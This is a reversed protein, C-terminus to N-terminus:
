AMGLREQLRKRAEEFHNVLQTAQEGPMGSQRVENSLDGLYAMQLKPNQELASSLQGVAPPKTIKTKDSLGGAVGGIAGGAGMGGGISGATSLAGGLTAGTGAAATTGAAAAPAAAGMSAITAIAGGIGAGVIGLIKGLLGGKKKEPINIDRLGKPMDLLGPM